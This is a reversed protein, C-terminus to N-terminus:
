ENQELRHFDRSERNEDRLFVALPESELLTANQMHCNNDTAIAMDCHHISVTSCM